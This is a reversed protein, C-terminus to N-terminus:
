KSFLRKLFSKKKKPQKKRMQILQNLATEYIQERIEDLSNTKYYGPVNAILYHEYGVAAVAALNNDLTKRVTKYYDQDRTKPPEYGERAMMLELFLLSTSGNRDAFPHIDLLDNHLRAAALEYLRKNMGLARKDILQNTREMLEKVAPLVDQALTGVRTGFFEFGSEDQRMESIFKPVISKNNIAHLEQIMEISVYPKQAMETIRASVNQRNAQKIKELEEPTRGYIQATFNEFHIPHGAKKAEEFYKIVFGMDIFDSFEHFIESFAQSVEIDAGSKIAHLNQFDEVLKGYIPAYNKGMPDVQKLLGHMAEMVSRLKNKVLTIKEPDSEEESGIVARLESLANNTKKALEIEKETPKWEETQKSEAPSESSSLQSKKTGSPEEEMDGKKIIELDEESLEVVDSVDPKKASKPIEPIPIEKNM